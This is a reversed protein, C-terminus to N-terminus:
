EDAITSEVMDGQVNEVQINEIPPVEDTDCPILVESNDKALLCAKLKSIRDSAITTEKAVINKCCKRSSGNRFRPAKLM